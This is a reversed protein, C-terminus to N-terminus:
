RHWALPGWNGPPGLGRHTGPPRRSRSTGAHRAACPNLSRFSFPWSEQLDTPATQRDIQPTHTLCLSLSSYPPLRSLSFSLLSPFRPRFICRLPYRLFATESLTRIVITVVGFFRGHRGFMACSIRQPFRSQAYDAKATRGHCTLKQM